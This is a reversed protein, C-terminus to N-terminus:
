LRFLDLERKMYKYSRNRYTDSLYANKTKNFWLLRPEDITWQPWFEFDTNGKNPDLNHVFNIFYTRVSKTSYSSNHDGTGFVVAEFSGHSTGFISSPGNRYNYSTQYGWLPVLPRSAAVFALALRRPLIFLVDGIVSALRKKGLWDEFDNGTRYPSGDLPKKSYTKVFNRMQGKKANHFYHKRLHQNLRAGSNVSSQAQTFITGEDEQNGLIMPVALFMSNNVLKEPSYRILDGDPRPIYLLRLAEVATIGPISNTAREFESPSLERLCQLTDQKRQCGAAKVVANYVEQCKPSNAYDAPVLSGSSMIAGRFLQRDNYSANGGNIVLHDFVSVGGASHGWLTIKDPDGGFAAINDSTWEISMRQDRLGLNTTKNVMVQEGPLFGWAGMRYNATVFIFPQKNNVAFNIFSTANYRSSVGMVFGYGHIMFLVPLNDGAKTGAPRQVTVTLCDESTVVPPSTDWRVPTGATRNFNLSRKEWPRDSETAKFHGQPCAPTITTADFVGLPRTRRVPRKLRNLGTPSEAYPIGFFSEVDDAFVGQIQSGPLNVTPGDSEQAFSFSALGTTLILLTAYAKM